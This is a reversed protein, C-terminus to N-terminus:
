ECLLIDRLSKKTMLHVRCLGNIAEELQETYETVEVVEGEEYDELIM